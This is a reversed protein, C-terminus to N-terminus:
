RALRALLAILGYLAAGVVFAGLIAVGGVAAATPGFVALIGLVAVGAAFVALALDRPLPRLQFLALGLTVALVVGLGARQWAEAM